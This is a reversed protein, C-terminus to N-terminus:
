NDDAEGDIAAQADAHYECRDDPDAHDNCLVDTCEEGDATGPCEHEAWGICDEVACTHSPWGNPDLDCNARETKWEEYSRLHHVGGEEQTAVVECWYNDIAEVEADEWGDTLVIQDVLQSAQERTLAM